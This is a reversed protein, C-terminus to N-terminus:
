AEAKRAEDLADVWQLTILLADKLGRIAEDVTVALPEPESSVEPERTLYVRCAMPGRDGHRVEFGVRAGETMQSEDTGRALDRVHFFLDKGGDDPTIFGFGNEKRTKIIGTAM